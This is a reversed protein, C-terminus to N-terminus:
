QGSRGVFCLFWHVFILVNTYLLVRLEFQQRM